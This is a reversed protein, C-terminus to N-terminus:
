TGLDRLKVPRTSRWNVLGVIGASMNEVKVPGEEARMSGNFNGYLMCKVGKEEFVLWWFRSNLRPNEGSDIWIIRKAREM